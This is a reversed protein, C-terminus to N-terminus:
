FSNKPDKLFAIEDATSPRNLVANRQPFRGFQDIIAKHKVAFHTWDQDARDESHEFPLYLFLREERTMAIDFGADIATKALRRAISDASYAHARLYLRWLYIHEDTRPGRDM